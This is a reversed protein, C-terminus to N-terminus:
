HLIKLVGMRSAREMYVKETATEIYSNENELDLRDQGLKFRKQAGPHQRRVYQEM